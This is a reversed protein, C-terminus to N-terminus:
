KQDKGIVIQVWIKSNSKQHPKHSRRLLKWLNHKQLLLQIL